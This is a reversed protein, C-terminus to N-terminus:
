GTGHPRLVKAICRMTRSQAFPTQTNRQYLRRLDDVADVDSWPTLCAYTWGSQKLRKETEAMVDPTSWVMDAFVTKSLGRRKMGLLYYGGDKAPGIVYENKLLIEFSRSFVDEPLDPSDSGIILAREFDQEFIDTFAHYMRAGLDAGKQPLCSVNGLWKKTKLTKEAPAAFVFFPYGSFRLRDLLDLVFCRYLRVAAADGISRALRTKVKGADPYKVFFLIADKLPQQGKWQGAPMGSM